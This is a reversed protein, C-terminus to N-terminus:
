LYSGKVLSPQALFRADQIFLNNEIIVHDDFVFPVSFSNSYALCALLAIVTLHVLPLRAIKNMPSFKPWPATLSCYDDM